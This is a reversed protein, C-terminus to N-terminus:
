PNSHIRGGSAPDVQEGVDAFHYTGTWSYNPSTTLAVDVRAHFGALKGTGDTFTCLGSYSSFNLTCRGIAANGNGADVVVNSDLLGNPYSGSQPVYPNQAFNVRSGAPIEAINSSAITCYPGPKTANFHSCEKIIHIDGGRRSGPDAALGSVSTLFGATLLTSIVTLTTSRM